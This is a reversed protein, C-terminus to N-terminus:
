AKSEAIDAILMLVGTIHDPLKELNNKRDVLGSSDKQGLLQRTLWLVTTKLNIKKLDIVLTQQTHAKFTYFRIKSPIQCRISLWRGHKLSQAAQEEPNRREFWGLWLTDKM